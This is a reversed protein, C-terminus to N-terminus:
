ARERRGDRYENPSQEMERRFLKSFYNPNLYGVKAAVEAVPINTSKLLECAREMRIAIVMRKLSCGTEAKFSGSLYTPNLRVEEALRDVSLDPDAYRESILSLILRTSHSYSEHDGAALRDIATPQSPHTINKLLRSRERREVASVLADKLEGLDVPKEIYAVTSLSIATKLYEKDSYSSLIIVECDPDNKKAELAVELGTHYPMRIDTLLIDPMLRLKEMGALGDCAAEVRAIGLAAWPISDLIGNRTYFEDELFLLTVPLAERIM